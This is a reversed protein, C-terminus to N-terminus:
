RQSCRSDKDEPATLFISFQHAKKTTTKIKNKNKNKLHSLNRLKTKNKSLEPSHLDYYFFFDSIKTDRTL